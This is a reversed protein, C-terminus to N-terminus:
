NRPRCPAPPLARCHPRLIGGGSRPPRPRRRRRRFRPPRCPSCRARNWPFMTQWRRNPLSGDQSLIGPMLRLNSDEDRTGSGVHRRQQKGAAQGICGELDDKHCAIHAIRASQREGPEFADLGESVRVLAHRTFIVICHHLACGLLCARFEDHQRPVHADKGIGEDIAPLAPHEVDVGRQQGLVFPQVCEGTCDRRAIAM